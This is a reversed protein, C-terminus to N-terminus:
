QEIILSGPLNLVVALQDNVAGVTVRIMGNGALLHEENFEPHVIIERHPIIQM